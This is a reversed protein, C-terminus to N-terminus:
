YGRQPGRRARMFEAYKRKKEEEAPDQGLAAHRSGYGFEAGPMRDQQPIGYLPDEGAFQENEMFMADDSPRGGGAPFATMGGPGGYKSQYQEALKMAMALTEMKNKKGKM